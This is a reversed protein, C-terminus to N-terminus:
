SENNIIGDLVAFIRVQTRYTGSVNGRFPSLTISGNSSRSVSLWANRYADDNWKITTIPVRMDKGKSLSITVPGRYDTVPYIQMIVTDWEAYPAGINIARNGATGSYGTYNINGDYALYDVLASRYAGGKVGLIEQGKIIKGSTVGVANALTAQPISVEPYGSTAINLHAGKTMRAYLVGGSLAVSKASDIAGINEMEGTVMEGKVGATKGKLIYAKTATANETFTGLIYGGIGGVKAGFRINSPILNAIHIRIKGAIYGLVSYDFAGVFSNYASGTIKSDNYATSDSPSFSANSLTEIEGNVIEGKSFGIAGKLMKKSELNGDSTDVVNENGITGFISVGSRINRSVMNADGDVELDENLYVGRQVVQKKIGPIIRQITCDLIEGMKAKTGKGAHFSKPYRVDAETATDKAASVGNSVNQKYPM